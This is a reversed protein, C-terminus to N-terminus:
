RLPSLGSQREVPLMPACARGCDQRYVWFTGNIPASPALWHLPKLREARQMRSGSVRCYRTFGSDWELSPISHHSSRRMEAATIHAAV